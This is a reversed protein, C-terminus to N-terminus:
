LGSGRTMKKQLSHNCLLLFRFACCWVPVCGEVCALLVGPVVAGALLFCSVSPLPCLLPPFGAGLGLGGRSRSVEVPVCACCRATGGCWFVALRAGPGLCALSCLCCSGSRWARVSFWAAARVSGAVFCDLAVVRSGCCASSWACDCVGGGAAVRPVPGVCVPACLCCGVSRWLLASRSGCLFLRWRVFLRRRVRVFVGGFWSLVNSRGRGSRGCCSRTRARRLRWCSRCWAGHACPLAVTRWGNGSGPASTGM